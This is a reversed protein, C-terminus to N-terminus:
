AGYFTNKAVAIASPGVATVLAGARTGTVGLRENCRAKEIARAQETIVGPVVPGFLRELQEAARAIGHAGRIAALDKDLMRLGAVFAPYRRPDEDWKESLDELPNMPNLVYLRGFPPLAGLISSVVRSLAEMPSPEGAYHQGALTTLVISIPALDPTSAFYIDRWRKVLQVALQLATKEHAPEHDPLPEISARLIKRSTGQAARADFWAAYGKPNSPKWDRLERDPVLLCTGPLSPDRRAPLIDMHFDGAFNLRVCRNMRETMPGYVGHARLRAEVENLVAVPDRAGMELQGVLDLDYENRDLPRVTTGIALSGQPYIMPDYRDLPSGGSGLWNGVSVYHSEALAHQTPTLQLARCIRALLDDLLSLAPQIEVTLMSM